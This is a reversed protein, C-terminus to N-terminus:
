YQVYVAVLAVLIGLWQIVDAPGVHNGTKTGINFMDNLPSVSGIAYSLLECRM